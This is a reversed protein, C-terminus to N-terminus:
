LAMKKEINEDLDGKEMKEIFKPFDKMEQQFEGMSDFQVTNEEIVKM